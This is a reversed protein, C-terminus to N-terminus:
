GKNVKKDFRYILGFVMIVVSLITLQRAVDSMETPLYEGVLLGIPASVWLGSRAAHSIKVKALVFDVIMFVMAFGLLAALASLASAKNSMQQISSIAVYAATASLWSSRQYRMWAKM